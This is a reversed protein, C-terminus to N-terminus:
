SSGWSSDDSIEALIQDFGRELSSDDENDHEFSKPALNFAGKSTNEYEDVNVRQAELESLRRVPKASNPGVKSPYGETDSGESSHLSSMDISSSHDSANIDNPTLSQSHLAAATITASATAHLLADQQVARVAEPGEGEMQTDPPATEMQVTEPVQAISPKRVQSALKAKREQMFKERSKRLKYSCLMCMIIVILGFGLAGGAAAVGVVITGTVDGKKNEADGTPVPM